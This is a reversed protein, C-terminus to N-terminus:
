KAKPVCNEHTSKRKLLRSRSLNKALQQQQKLRYGDPMNLKAPIVKPDIYRRGDHLENLIGMDEEDLEFDFININEHVRHKKVSKPLVCVGSQVAFRILVQAPTKTHKEAIEVIPKDRVIKGLGLPCYGQVQIVHDDCFSRLEMDNQYPHFEIQNVHPLVSMRDITHDFHYLSYNSVGIARLVGEDYLTEFARWTESLVDWMKYRDHEQVEPWHILMLDLYDVKLRKMATRIADKSKQYGFDTPWLKTALFIDERPVQSERLALALAEECGYRKATDIGRYGCDKLAFVVADHSYGGAHSTGYGVTPIGVGNRLEFRSNISLPGEPTVKPSM